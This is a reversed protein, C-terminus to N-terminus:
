NVRAILFLVLSIIATIRYIQIWKSIGIIKTMNKEYIRLLEEDIEKENNIAIEEQNNM